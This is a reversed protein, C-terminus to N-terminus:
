VYFQGMTSKGPTYGSRRFTAAALPPPRFQHEQPHSYNQPFTPYGSFPISSQQHLWQSTPGYQFDPPREMMMSNHSSAAFPQREYALSQSWRHQRSNQYHKPHIGYDGHHHAFPPRMQQSGFRSPVATRQPHLNLSQPNAQGRYELALFEDFDPATTFNSDMPDCMGHHLHQDFSADHSSHVAQRHIAEDNHSRPPIQPDSQSGFFEHLKRKSSDEIPIPSLVRYDAAAITALNNLRNMLIEDEGAALGLHASLARIEQAVCKSAQRPDSVDGTTPHSLFHLTRVHQYYQERLQRRDPHLADLLILISDIASTADPVVFTRANGKSEQKIDSDRRSENHDNNMINQALHLFSNHRSLQDVMMRPDPLIFFVIPYKFADRFAELGHSLEAPHIIGDEVTPELKKLDHAYYARVALSTEGRPFLLHADGSLREVVRCKTAEKRLLLEIESCIM